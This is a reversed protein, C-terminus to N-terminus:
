KPAVNRRNGPHRICRDFHTLSYRSRERSPSSEKECAVVFHYEYFGLCQEKYSVRWEISKRWSEYSGLLQGPRGQIDHRVESHYAAWLGDPRLYEGWRTDCEPSAQGCHYAWFERVYRFFHWRIDQPHLWKPAPRHEQVLVNVAYSNFAAQSTGEPSGGRLHVTMDCAAKICQEGLRKHVQAKEFAGSSEEKDFFEYVSFHRFEFRDKIKDHVVMGRCCLEITSPRISQYKLQGQIALVFESATFPTLGGMLWTVVVQLLQPHTEREENQSETYLYQYLKTLEKPLKGLTDVAWSIEPQRCVVDLVM